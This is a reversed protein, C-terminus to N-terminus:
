RCPGVPRRCWVDLFLHSFVCRVVSPSLRTTLPACRLSYPPAYTHTPFYTKLPPQTLAVVSSSDSEISPGPARRSATLFLTSSFLPFSHTVTEFLLLRASIDFSHVEDLYVLLPRHLPSDQFSLFQLSLLGLFLRNRVSPDLWQLLLQSGCHHHLLHRVPQQAHTFFTFPARSCLAPQRGIVVRAVSHYYRVRAVALVPYRVETIPISLKGGHASVRFQVPNNRSGGAVPKM